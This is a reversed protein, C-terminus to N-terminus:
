RAPILSRLIFSNNTVVVWPQTQCRRDNGRQKSSRSLLRLLTVSLRDQLSQSQPFINSDVKLITSAPVSPPPSLPFTEGWAGTKSNSPMKGYDEKLRTRHAFKPVPLHDTKWVPNPHDIALNFKSCDEAAKVSEAKLGCRADFLM